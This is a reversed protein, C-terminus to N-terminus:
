TGGFIRLYQMHYVTAVAACIYKYTYIYIYVSLSMSENKYIYIYVYVHNYAYYHIMDRVCTETQSESVVPTPEAHVAYLNRLRLEECAECGGASGTSPSGHDGCRQFDM